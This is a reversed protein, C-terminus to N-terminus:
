PKLFYGQSALFNEARQAFQHQFPFSDRVHPELRVKARHRTRGDNCNIARFVVEPWYASDVTSFGASPITLDALLVRQSGAERCIADRAQEPDEAFQKRFAPNAGGAQVAEAGLQDVVLRELDSRLLNAFREETYGGLGARDNVEAQVFVRLNAVSPAATVVAPKPPAITALQTPAKPAPTVPPKRQVAQRASQTQTAAIPKAAPSTPVQSQAPAASAPLPAKTAVQPGQKAIGVVAGPAPTSTTGTGIQPAGAAGSGDALVAAGEGAPEPAEIRDPMDAGRPTVTEAAVPPTPTTVAAVPPEEGGSREALVVLPREPPGQDSVPTVLWEQVPLYRWALLAAIGLVILLLPGGVFGCARPRAPAADRVRSSPVKCGTHIEGSMSSHTYGPGLPRPRM